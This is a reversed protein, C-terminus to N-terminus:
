PSIPPASAPASLLAAFEPDLAELRDRVMPTALEEKPFEELYQRYIALAEDTRELAELVRGQHYLAMPRYYDSPYPAIAQFSALAADLEGKAEFANGQGELALFRLPHDRGADDLFLAYDALAADFDGAQVAQAAAVLTANQEVQDRGSSKAEAMAAAIAAAREDETTFIPMRYMQLSDGLREQEEPPVVQGRVIAATAAQLTRAAEADGQASRNTLMVGGGIVLVAIVIAGLVLKPTDIVQRSAKRVGRQFADDEKEAKVNAKRKRRSRNWTPLEAREGPARDGDGGPDGGSDGAPTGSPKAQDPGDPNVLEDKGPTAPMFDLDDSM